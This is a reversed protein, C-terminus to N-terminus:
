LWWQYMLLNCHLWIKMILDQEGEAQEEHRSISWIRAEEEHKCTLVLLLYLSHPFMDWLFDRCRSSPFCFSAWTHCFLQLLSETPKNKRFGPPERSGEGSVAILLSYIVLIKRTATSSSHAVWDGVDCSNKYCSLSQPPPLLSFLLFKCGVLDIRQAM